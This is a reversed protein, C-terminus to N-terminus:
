HLIIFAQSQSPTQSIAKHSNSQIPNSPKGPRTDKKNYIRKNVKLMKMKDEKKNMYWQYLVVM